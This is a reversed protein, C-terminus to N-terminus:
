WAGSPLSLLSVRLVALDDSAVRKAVDPDFLVSYMMANRANFYLNAYQHLRLGGPISREDRRGQVAASAISSHQITRSAEHSCIGLRLISPVNLHVTMFHLEDIDALNM